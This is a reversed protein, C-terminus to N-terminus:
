IFVVYIFKYAIRNYKRQPSYELLSLLQTQIRLLRNLLIFVFIVHFITAPFYKYVLIISHSNGHKRSQFLKKYVPNEPKRRGFKGRGLNLKKDRKLNLKKM